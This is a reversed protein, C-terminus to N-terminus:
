AFYQIEMTTIRRSTVKSERCFSPMALRLHCPDHCDCRFLALLYIYLHMMCLALACLLFSFAQMGLTHGLIYTCSFLCPDGYKLSSSSHYLAHYVQYLGDLPSLSSSPPPKFTCLWISFALSRYRSAAIAQSLWMSADKGKRSAGFLDHGLEM